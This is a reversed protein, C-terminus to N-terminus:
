RGKETKEEENNQSKRTLELYQLQKLVNKNKELGLDREGSTKQKM